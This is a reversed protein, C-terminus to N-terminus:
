YVEVCDPLDYDVVIPLGQYTPRRSNAQPHESPLPGMKQMSRCLEDFKNKGLVLGRADGDIMDDLQSLISM